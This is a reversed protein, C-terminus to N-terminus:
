SCIPEVIKDIIACFKLVIDFLIFFDKCKQLLYGKSGDGM